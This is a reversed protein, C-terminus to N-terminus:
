CQGITLRQEIFYHHDGAEGTVVAIIGDGQALKGPSLNLAPTASEVGCSLETFISAVTTGDDTNLILGVGEIMASSDNATVKCSLVLMGDGSNLCVNWDSATVPDVPPRPPINASM